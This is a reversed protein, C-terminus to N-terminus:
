FKIRSKTPVSVNLFYRYNVWMFWHVGASIYVYSTALLLLNMKFASEEDITYFYKEDDPCDATTDRFTRTAEDWCLFYWAQYGFFKRAIDRTYDRFDADNLAIGLLAAGTLTHLLACILHINGTRRVSESFSLKLSFPNYCYYLWLGLSIGITSTGAVIGVITGVTIEMPETRDSNLIENQQVLAAALFGHLIVKAVVSLCSYSIIEIKQLSGKYLSYVYPVIFSCFLFFIVVVFVIVFWPAQGENDEDGVTSTAKIAAYLPNLFAGVFLFCMSSFIIFRDIKPLDLRYLLSCSGQLAVFLMVPALVVSFLTNGGWLIGVVILMISASFAYDFRFRYFNETLLLQTVEDTTILSTFDTYKGNEFHLAVFWSAVIIILSTVIHLIAAWLGVARISDKILGLCVSASLSVIGYLCFVATNFTKNHSENYTQMSVKVYLNRKNWMSTGCLYLCLMIQVISLAIFGATGTGLGDYKTERQGVEVYTPIFCALSFLSIILTVNSEDHVLSKVAEMKNYFSCIRPIYRQFFLLFFIDFFFCFLKLEFNFLCFSSFSFRRCCILLNFANISRAKLSKEFIFM